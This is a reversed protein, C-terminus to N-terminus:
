GNLWISWKKFDEPKGWVLAYFRCRGDEKAGAPFDLPFPPFILEGPGVGLENLCKALQATATLHSATSKGETTEVRIELLNWQKAM